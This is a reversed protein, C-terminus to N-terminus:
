SRLAQYETPLINYRRKFARRFSHASTYGVSDSVEQVSVNGKKFYECAMDMRYAELYNSFTKGTKEVFLANIANVSVPFKERLDAMCLCPNAFSQRAFDIITDHLEEEKQQQSERSKEAMSLCILRACELVKALDQGAMEQINQLLVPVDFTSRELLHILMGCIESALLDSLIPNLKQRVLNEDSLREFLGDVVERNGAWVQHLIQNEFEFPFFYPKQGKPLDSYWFPEDYDAYAMAQRAEEFSLHVDMLTDHIQGVSTKLFLHHNERFEAHWDRLAERFDDLFMKRDMQPLPLLFTIGDEMMDDSAHAFLLFSSHYKEQFLFRLLTKRSFTAESDGTERDVSLIMVLFGPAQLEVKALHMDRDLQQTNFFKGSLLRFLFIAQIIPRQTELVQALDRNKELMQMINRRIRDSESPLWLSETRDSLGIAAAIEQWPRANRRSLWFALAAGGLLALLFVVAVVLGLQWMQGYAFSTPVASLYTWGFSASRVFTVSYRNGGYRYMLHGENTNPLEPLSATLGEPTGTAYVGTLVKRDANIVIAQGADGLEVGSLLRQLENGDVIVALYGDIRSHYELPLSQLYIMSQGTKVTPGSKVLVEAAPYFDKDHRLEAAFARWQESDMNDWKFYTGYFRSFDLFADTSSLTIDSRNYHIYYEAILPNTNSYRRVAEASEKIRLIDTSNLRRTAMTGLSTIDQNMAMRDMFTIMTGLQQSAVSETDRLRVLNARDTQAQMNRAAMVYLISGSVTPLVLVILYSLLFGLVIKRNMRHGLVSDRGKISRKEQGGAKRM